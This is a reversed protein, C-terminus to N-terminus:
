KSGEEGITPNMRGDMLPELWDLFQPPRDLTAMKTGALASVDLTATQRLTIVTTPTDVQDWRVTGSWDSWKVDPEVKVVQFQGATVSEQQWSPTSYTRDIQGTVDYAQAGPMLKFVVPHDDPSAYPNVGGGPVQTYYYAHDKLSTWSALNLDVKSGKSFAELFKPYDAAPVSIGRFLAKRTPDASNVAKLLEQAAERSNISMTYPTRDVVRPRNRYGTLPEPPTTPDAIAARIKGVANSMIWANAARHLDSGEGFGAFEGGRPSGAPERPQDPNYKLARPVYSSTVAQYFTDISPSHQGLLGATLLEAAREKGSGSDQQAYATLPPTTLALDYATKWNYAANLWRAGGNDLAAHCLEHLVVGETTNGGATWSHDANPDYYAPHTGRDVWALPQGPTLQGPSRAGAEDSIKIQKGDPSTAGATTRGGPMLDPSETKLAVGRLSGPLVAQVRDIAKGIALAPEGAFRQRVFDDITMGARDAAADMTKITDAHGSYSPYYPSATASAFEGGEPSGAPVRPQAESYKLATITHPDVPVGDVVTQDYGLSEVRWTELLGEVLRPEADLGSGNGLVERARVSAGAFPGAAKASWGAVVSPFPKDGRSANCNFCAPVLNANTYRGGDRGPWLRDQTLHPGDLRLGCYVCPCTKGDGFERLLNLERRERDAASGRANAEVRAAPETSYLHNARAVQAATPAPDRQWKALAESRVRALVDPAVKSSSGDATWRGAEDRPESPDFAKTTIDRNGHEEALAILGAKLRAVIPEVRSQRRLGGGIRHIRWLKRKEIRERLDVLKATSLRDLPPVMRQDMYPELWDLFQPPGKMTAVKTGALQDADLTEMQTLTVTLGNGVRQVDDVAFRGETLHESYKPGQVIDNTADYAHAGPQLDFMVPHANPDGTEQAGTMYVDNAFQKAVGPDRTWSSLNLDIRDGPDLLQLQNYVSTPAAIGRYLAYTTPKSGNVANVLIHGHEWGPAKENGSALAARVSTYNHEAFGGGSWDRAAWRVPDDGLALIAEDDSRDAGAVTTGSTWRGEPDRPESPDFKVIRRLEVLDHTPIAAIEASLPNVEM